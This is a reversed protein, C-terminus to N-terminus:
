VRGERLEACVLPEVFFSDYIEDVRLGEVKVLDLIKSLLLVGLYTAQLTEYSHQGNGYRHKSALPNM